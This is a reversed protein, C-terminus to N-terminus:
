TLETSSRCLLFYENLSDYSRVFASVAISNGEKLWAIADEVADRASKNRIAAGIPHDARFMDHRAYVAM